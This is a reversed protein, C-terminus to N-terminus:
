KKPAYKGKAMLDKMTEEISGILSNSEADKGLLCLTYMGLFWPWFGIESRNVIKLYEPDFNEPDPCYISVGKPMGIGNPRDSAMIVGSKEYFIRLSEAARSLSPPIKQNQLNEAINILDRNGEGFNFADEICTKIINASEAHSSLFETMEKALEYIKANLSSLKSCDLAVQTITTKIKKYHYKTEDVIKKAMGEPNINPNKKLEELITDYPYGSGPLKDESSVIIDALDKFYDITEINGMHCADFAIIHIRPKKDDILGFKDRNQIRKKNIMEMTVKYCKRSISILTEFDGHHISLKGQKIYMKGIGDDKLAGKWGLGHGSLVVLNNEAPYLIMCNSITEELIKPDSSTQPLPSRFIIDEELTTGKNLRAFFSDTILPGIFFVCIHVNEDSGVAKMEMLDDFMHAALNNNAAMYVFVTWKARHDIANLNMESIRYAFDEGSFVVREPLGNKYPNGSGLLM